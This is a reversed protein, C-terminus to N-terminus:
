LQKEKEKFGLDTAKEFSAIDNVVLEDNDDVICLPVKFDKDKEKEALVEDETMPKSTINMGNESLYRVNLALKKKESFKDWDASGFFAIYMKDDKKLIGEIWKEKHKYAKTYKKLSSDM